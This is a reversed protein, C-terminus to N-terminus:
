KRRSWGDEIKQNLEELTPIGSLADYTTVCSAGAAAALEACRKIEYGQQIAYLFAAISVDGAGTGSKVCDPVFCPVFYESDEWGNVNDWLGGGIERLKEKTGTALYVGQIGCKILVVKAGWDLMRRGLKQVYEMPVIEDFSKGEVGGKENWIEYGERDAAYSLEEISPVFIDVYPLTNKIIEYWNAAGAEDEPDALSMDLSTAVGTDKAKKYMEILEEGDNIYFHRMSQPYGFHFICADKLEEYDIDQNSFHHNSGPDHIFIRDHGPIAIVISYSTVEEETVLVRKEVHYKSLEKVLIEGFVDKGIKTVLRVNAGLRALGLGTNSVTGGPSVTIGKTKLIKGPQFSDYFSMKRKGPFNPTIDVCSLGAVVIKKDKVGM